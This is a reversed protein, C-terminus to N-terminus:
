HFIHLLHLSMHHIFKKMILISKKIKDFRKWKKEMLKLFTFFNCIVENRRIPPISALDKEKNLYPSNLLAGLSIIELRDKFLNSEIQSGNIFYNRHALANIIGEDLAKFPYSFTYMKM